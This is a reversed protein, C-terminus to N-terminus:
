LIRGWNREVLTLAVAPTVCVLKGSSHKEMIQWGSTCEIQTDHIIRTYKPVFVVDSLFDLEWPYYQELDNKIKLNWYKQMSENSGGDTEVDYNRQMNINIQTNEIIDRIITHAKSASYREDPCTFIKYLMNQEFIQAAIESVDFHGQEHELLYNTKENEHVWSNNKEFVGTASIATVQFQCIISNVEKITWFAKIHTTAVANPHHTGVYQKPFNGIEGDFDDWNIKSRQEWEIENDLGLDSFATNLTLTFFALILLLIIQKNV